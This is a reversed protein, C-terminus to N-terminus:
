KKGKGVHCAKICMGCSFHGYIPELVKYVHHYCKTKDIAWGKMRDFSEAGRLANVPCYEQCAYCLDCLHEDLLPDPMFEANTVIAGVLVRPGYEPTLLLNNLGFEGIGSAM